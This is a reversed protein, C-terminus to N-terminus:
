VTFPKIILVDKGALIADRAIDYHLGPPTLIEVVQVDDRDLAAHYDAYAAAESVRAHLAQLAAPNTDALARVECLDASARWAELHPHAIGGCGVIAVGIKDSMHM